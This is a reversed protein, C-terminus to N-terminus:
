GNENSQNYEQLDQSRKDLEMGVAIVFSPFFSRLMELQEDTYHELPNPIEPNTM